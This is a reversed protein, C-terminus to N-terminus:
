VTDLKFPMPILHKNVYRLNHCLRYKPNSPTSSPKLTVLIPCVVHPRQAAVRIAKFFLMEKIANDTWRAVNAPISNHANHYSKPWKGDIFKLPIGKSIASVIWDPAGCRRWEQVHKRLSGTVQHQLQCKIPRNHLYELESHELM